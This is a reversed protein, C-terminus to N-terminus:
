QIIKFIIKSVCIHLVCLILTSILCMINGKSMSRLLLFMFIFVIWTILIRQHPKQNTYKIIIVTFFVFLILSIILSKLIQFSMMGLMGMLTLADHEIYAKMVVLFLWSMLFSIFIDAIYVINLLINLIKLLVKKM